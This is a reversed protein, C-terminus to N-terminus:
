KARGTGFEPNRFTEPLVRVVRGVKRGMQGSESWAKKEVRDMKSDTM